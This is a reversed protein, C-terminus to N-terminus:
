ARRAAPQRDSAASDNDTPAAIDALIQMQTQNVMSAARNTVNSGIADASEPPLGPAVRDALMRAAIGIGGGKALAAGLQEAMMGKWVEGATGKGYMEEADQPLMAGIFNQLIMAEFRQYTEKIQDPTHDPKAAAPAPALVGSPDNSALLQREFAPSRAAIETKRASAAELMSEAKQAVAPDAARVVDLILDTATQISM